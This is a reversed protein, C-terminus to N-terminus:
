LWAQVKCVKQMLVYIYKVLQEMSANATTHASPNVHQMTFLVKKLLRSDCESTVGAKKTDVGSDHDETDTRLACHVSLCHYIYGEAQSHLDLAGVAHTLSTNSPPPIIYM